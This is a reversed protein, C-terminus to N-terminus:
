FRLTYFTMGFFTFCLFLKSIRTKLKSIKKTGGDPNESSLRCEDAQAKFGQPKLIEAFRAFQTKGVGKRNLDRAIM